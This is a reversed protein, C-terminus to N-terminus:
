MPMNTEKKQEDAHRRRETTRNTQGDKKVEIQRDTQRSSYTTTTKKRDTHM